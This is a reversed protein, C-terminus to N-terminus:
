RSRMRFLTREREHRFGYLAVTDDKVAYAHLLAPEQGTAPLEYFTSMPAELEYGVGSSTWCLWPPQKALLTGQPARDDGGGPRARSASAARAPARTRTRSRSRSRTPPTARCTGSAQAARRVMHQVQAQRRRRDSWRSSSRRRRTSPVPLDRSVAACLAAGRAQGLKLASDPNKAMFVREIAVEDPRHQEIIAGLEVFIRKLRQAFGDCDLLNLVGHYVYTARGGCDADIVGVGTRQSGPDIGIIRTTAVPASLHARRDAPRRQFLREARRRPGRALRAAQGREGGARRGREVDNDARFTIEAQDPKLGAREMAEKVAAFAEPAALVELSGDEPYSVVDDAGADLAVEM